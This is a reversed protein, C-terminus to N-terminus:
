EEDPQPRTLPPTPTGVATDDGRLAAVVLHTIDISVIKPETM